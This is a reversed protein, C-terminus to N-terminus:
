PIPKAFNEFFKFNKSSPQRARAVRRCLATAVVGAGPLEGNRAVADPTVSERLV